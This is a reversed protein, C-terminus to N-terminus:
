PDELTFVPTKLPSFLTRLTFVTDELHFYTDELAGPGWIERRVKTEMARELLQKRISSPLEHLDLNTGVTTM